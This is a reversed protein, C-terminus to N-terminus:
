IEISEQCIVVIDKNQEEKKRRESFYDVCKPCMYHKDKIVPTVISTKPSKTILNGM